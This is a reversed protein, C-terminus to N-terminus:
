NFSERILEVSMVNEHKLRDGNSSINFTSKFGLFDERQFKNVKKVAHADTKVKIRFFMAACNFSVPKFM